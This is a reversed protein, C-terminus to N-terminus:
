DINIIECAVQYDGDDQAQCRTVRLQAQMPPTINNSPTLKVQLQSGPQLADGAIFMMGKGSLNKAVGQHITQEGLQQYEVTADVVM